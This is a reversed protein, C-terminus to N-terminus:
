LLELRWRVRHMITPSIPNSLITDRDQQAESEVNTSGSHCIYSTTVRVPM